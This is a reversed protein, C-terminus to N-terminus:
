SDPTQLLIINTNGTEKEERPGVQTEKTYKSIHKKNRKKKGKM